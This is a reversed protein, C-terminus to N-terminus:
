RTDVETGLALQTDAPAILPGLGDLVPQALDFVPQPHLGLWLLALMMAVM